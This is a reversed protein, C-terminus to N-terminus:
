VIVSISVGESAIETSPAGASSVGVAAQPRNAATMTFAGDRADAEQQPEGQRTNQGAGQGMGQGAWQREQAALTLTAVPTHHETLYAHLGALHTGLSQAADASGPVLAAHIGKADALARVAIWGLSPDQFGAEAQHASVHTWTPAGKNGISDLAAFTEYPSLSKTGSPPLGPNLGSNGQTDSAAHAPSADHSGTAGPQFPTSAVTQIAAPHVAQTASAHLANTRTQATEVKSAVGNSGSAPKEEAASSAAVDATKKQPTSSSASLAPSKSAEAHGSLSPAMSTGANEAQSSAPSTGQLAGSAVAPEKGNSGPQADPGISSASMAPDFAPGFAPKTRSPIEGAGPGVSGTRTDTLAAAGNRTSFVQPSSGSANVLFRAKAKCDTSSSTRVPAPVRVPQAPMVMPVSPQAATRQASNTSHTENKADKREHGTRTAKGPESAGKKLTSAVPQGSAQLSATGPDVAARAIASRPAIAKASTAVGDPHRQPVTELPLGVRNMPTGAVKMTGQAQGSVDRAPGPKATKEACAEPMGPAVLISRLSSGFSRERASSMAAKLGAGHSLGNPAGTATGSASALEASALKIVASGTMRYTM